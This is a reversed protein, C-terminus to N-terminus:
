EDDDQDQRFTKQWRQDFEDPYLMALYVDEVWAILEASSKTPLQSPVFGTYSDATFKCRLWIELVPCECRDDRKCVLWLLIHGRLRLQTRDSRGFMERRIYSDGGMGRATGAM